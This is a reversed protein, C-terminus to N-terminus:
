APFLRGNQLRPVAAARKLLPEYRSGIVATLRLSTPLFGPWQSSSLRLLLTEITFPRKSRWKAWMYLLFLHCSQTCDAVIFWGCVRTGRSDVHIKLHDDDRNRINVMRFLKVGAKPPPEVAIERGTVVPAPYLERRGTGPARYDKALVDCRCRRPRSLAQVEGDGVNLGRSAFQETATDFDAFHEM